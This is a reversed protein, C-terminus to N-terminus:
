SRAWGIPLRLGRECSTPLSFIPCDVTVQAERLMWRNRQGAHRSEVCLSSPPMTSYLRCQPDGDWITTTKSHIPGSRQGLACRTTSALIAAHCVCMCRPQAPYLRCIQHVVRPRSVLVLGHTRDVTQISVHDRRPGCTWHQVPGLVIKHTNAGHWETACTRTPASFVRCM